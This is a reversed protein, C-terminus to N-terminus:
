LGVLYKFLNDHLMSGALNSNPWRSGMHYM